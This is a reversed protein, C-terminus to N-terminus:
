ISIDDGNSGDNEIEITAPSSKEVKGYVKNKLKLTISPRGKGKGGENEKIEVVSPNQHAWALVAQESHGNNKFQGLTMEGRKKALLQTFKELNASHTKERSARMLSLQESVFFSMIEIAKRAETISLPVKHAEDLHRAVHLVGAIRWANEAWRGAFPRFDALEGRMREAANEAYALLLDRASSTPKIVKAKGTELYRQRYATFIRNWLKYYEDLLDPSVGDKPVLPPCDYQAILCRPLFGGDTIWESETLLKAKHPQALWFLSQWVKELFISGEGVRDIKADSMTYGKLHIYDEPKQTNSHEGLLNALPKGADDSFHTLQCRNLDHLNRMAALTADETWISPPAKKQAELRKVERELSIIEETQDPTLKGNGAKQMLKDLRAKNCRLNANIEPLSESWDKRLEREKQFIPHFTNKTSESKGGASDAFGVHYLGLSMPRHQLSEIVIGKGLAASIASLVSIRAMMDPVHTTRVTEDIIRQFVREAEFKEGLIDFYERLRNAQEFQDCTCENLSKECELCTECDCEAYINGCGSCNKNTDGEFVLDLADDKIVPPLADPDCFDAEITELLANGTLEQFRERYRRVIGPTVTADEIEESSLLSEGKVPAISLTSDTLMKNTKARCHNPSRAPSVM